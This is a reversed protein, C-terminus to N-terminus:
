AETYALGCVATIHGPAQARQESGNGSASDTFQDAVADNEGPQAKGTISDREIRLRRSQNVGASRYGGESEQGGRFRILRTFLM